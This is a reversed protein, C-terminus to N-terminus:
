SGTQGMFLVTSLRTEVTSRGASQVPALEFMTPRSGRADLASAADVASGAPEEAGPERGRNAHAILSEETLGLMALGGQTAAVENWTAPMVSHRAVTTQITRAGASESASRPARPHTPPHRADRETSALPVSRTPLMRRQTIRSTLSQSHSM